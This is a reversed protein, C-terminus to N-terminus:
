RRSKSAVQKMPRAATTKAQTQHGRPAGAPATVRPEDRRRRNAEFRARDFPEGTTLIAFLVPVLRRAFSCIIKTKIVKRERLALYDARYPGRPQAWRGALLYGPRDAPPGPPARRAQAM